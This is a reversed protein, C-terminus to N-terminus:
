RKSLAELRTQINKIIKNGKYMMDKQMSFFCTEVRFYSISFEM